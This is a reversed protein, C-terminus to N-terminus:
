VHRDSYMNFGQGEAVHRCVSCQYMWRERYGGQNGKNAYIIQTREINKELTTTFFRVSCSLRAKGKPVCVSFSQIQAEKADFSLILMFEHDVLKMMSQAIAHIDSTLCEMMREQELDVVDVM